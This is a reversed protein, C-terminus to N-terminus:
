NTLDEDFIYDMEDPMDEPNELPVHFLLPHMEEAILYSSYKFLSEATYSRDFQCSEEIIDKDYTQGDELEDFTFPIGNIFYMKVIQSFTEHDYWCYNSTIRYEYSM